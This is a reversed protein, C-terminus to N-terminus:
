PIGKDHPTILGGVGVVSSEGQMAKLNDCSRPVCMAQMGQGKAAQKMRYGGRSPVLGERLLILFHDKHKSFVKVRKCCRKCDGFTEMIGLRM